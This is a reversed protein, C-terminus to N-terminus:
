GPANEPDIRTIGSGTSDPVWVEGDIAFAVQTTGNVPITASVENSDPDIRSVLGTPHAVWLSDGQVAIGLPAPDTEILAQVEGTAPDFRGIMADDGFAVWLSGFAHALFNPNGIESVDITQLIEETAPDIQVLSQRDIGVSVWLGDEASIIANALSGVEVLGVSEVAQPDIRLVRGGERLTFWISGEAQAASSAQSTIQFEHITEGSTIDVVLISSDGGSSRPLRSVFAKGDIVVLVCPFQPLSYRVDSSMERSELDIPSLTGGFTTMWVTGIGDDFLGCPRSTTGIVDIVGDQTATPVTTTLATTTSTEPPTTSPPAEPETAVAPNTASTDPETGPDSTATCASLVLALVGVLTSSWRQLDRSVAM